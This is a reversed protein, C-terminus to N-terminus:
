GLAQLREIRQEISPHTAMLASASEAFKKFPNVIFLHQVARSADDWRVPAHDLKRLAGILGTPNRTLKVATADAMYERQRSVAMQVFKAMIPSLIGVLLLVIIAVVVIGGGRRDDRRRGGWAMFRTSRLALDSVVVILGVLVGVATMYLVDSNAVHGMEHAVVGQLEDRNLANLLGRTVAVTAKEPRMGTAFANLAETEVIAVRPMPVGAALSMEEVVNWLQPADAKAIERAGTLGLVIRDGALMAIGTWVLSFLLMFGAAGVAWAQGTAGYDDPVAMVGFAWGIGAGATVGILTLLLCLFATNRRNKRIAAVFDTRTLRVAPLRPRDPESKKDWPGAGAAM